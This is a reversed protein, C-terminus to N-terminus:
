VRGHRRHADATLAAWFAVVCVAVIIVQSSVCYICWTQLVKWEIWTYRGAFIAGGLAGLATLWPYRGALAGLLAYGLVGILAIPIGHIMAFPSKNVTGCDWVSNIQCPSTGSNYHEGYALTAVAVGALCLAVLVATQIRSIM